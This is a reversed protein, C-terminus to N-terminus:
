LRMRIIGRKQPPRSPERSRPLSTPTTARSSVVSNPTDSRSSRPTSAALESTFRAEIKSLHQALRRQRLMKGPAIEAHPLHCLPCDDGAACGETRYLDCPVCTGAQHESCPRGGKAHSKEFRSTSACTSQQSTGVSCSSCTDQSCSSATSSMVKSSPVRTSATERSVARSAM